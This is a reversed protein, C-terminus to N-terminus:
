EYYRYAAAEDFSKVQNILKTQKKRFEKDNDYSNHCVRCLKVINLPNTYHEPYCSKPLLHAADLTHEEEKKGCIACFPPLAKKIKAVERNRQKQKQSIQKM